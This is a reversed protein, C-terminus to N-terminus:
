VLKPNNPRMGVLGGLAVSLPRGLLTVMPLFFPAGPPIFGPVPRLVLMWAVVGYEFLGISVAVALAMQAGYRGHTRAVIWGALFCSTFVLWEFTVLNILAACWVVDPGCRGEYMGLWRALPAGLWSTLDLRAATIPFALGYYVAWGIVLARLLLRKHSLLDSGTATAVASLVQGWFWLRSRRADYLEVLDGVLSERGSGSLFREAIWM